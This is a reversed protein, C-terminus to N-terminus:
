SAGVPLLTVIQLPLKLGVTVVFPRAVIVMLLPNGGQPTSLLHAIHTPSHARLLVGDALSSCLPAHPAIASLATPSLLLPPMCTSPLRLPM